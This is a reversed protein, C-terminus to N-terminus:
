TLQLKPKLATVQTFTYFLNSVRDFPVSMRVLWLALALALHRTSEETLRSGRSPGHRRSAVCPDYARCDVDQTLRITIFRHLLEPLVSHCVIGERFAQGLDPL